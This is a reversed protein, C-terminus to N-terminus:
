ESFERALEVWEGHPALQRYAKWHPKAEDSRGLKELTVALYFHGDAYVPNLALAALYCRRAEEFRGRDHHVNGLNFHAEFVDAEFAVAQEYLAQAESLRDQAYYINGLNVLAPVLEPDVALAERYGAAAADHTDPTGDDLASAALFLDAADRTDARPSPTLQQAREALRIVRAPAAELRFDLALQGARARDAARMAARFSLGAALDAAVHRLVV